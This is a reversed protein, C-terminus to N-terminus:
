NLPHTSNRVILEIPPLRHDPLIGHILNLISRATTQGLEKIPQRLTTLGPTFYESTPLDDFGVVSVDDPVKFGNDHIARIVGYATLDNAAFIATIESKHDNLLENTLEYAKESSFDGEKILLTDLQIGVERLARQYGQYRRVSDPQSDPGKIHAINIHGAQLLHLTAIYGALENDINISQVQHAQIDYGLATVPTSQAFHVIQEETLNGSIIIVGDVNLRQLYQLAHTQLQPDWHGSAVALQYGQQMLAKEMDMLVQSTYPSDPDQVLVGITMSRHQPNITVQYNLYKIAAEINQSKEASVLHTRNLFRSVTAPSVKAIKALDQITVINQRNKMM